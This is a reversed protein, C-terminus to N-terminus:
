KTHLEEFLKDFNGSPAKNAEMLRSIIEIPLKSKNNVKNTSNTATSGSSVFIYSPSKYLTSFIDKQLDSYSKVNRNSTKIENIVEPSYNKPLIILCDTAQISLDFYFGNPLNAGFYFMRRSNDNKVRDGVESFIGNIGIKLYNFKTFDLFVNKYIYYNRDDDSLQMENVMTVLGGDVIIPITCESNIFDIDDFKIDKVKIM